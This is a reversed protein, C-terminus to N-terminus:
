HSLKYVYLRGIPPQNQDASGVYVTGNVVTPSSSVIQENNVLLQTIPHCFATVCGSANFVMVMGNNEGVYVLGNAVTPSSIIAAQAGVADGSWLPLCTAAGCGAARFAYFISDGDGM